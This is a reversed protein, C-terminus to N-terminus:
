VRASLWSLEASYVGHSGRRLDVHSVREPAPPRRMAEVRPAPQNEDDRVLNETAVGMKECIM